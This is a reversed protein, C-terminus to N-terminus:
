QEEKKIKKDTQGKRSTTRDSLKLRHLTRIADRAEREARSYYGRGPVKMARLKPGMRVSKATLSSLSPEAKIEAKLVPSAEVHTSPLKIASVPTSPESSSPSHPEQKISPHSTTAKDKTAGVLSVIFALIFLKIAFYSPLWM